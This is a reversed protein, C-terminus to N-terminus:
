SRVKPRTLLETISGVRVTTMPVGNKYIKADWAGHPLKGKVRRTEYTDASKRRKM